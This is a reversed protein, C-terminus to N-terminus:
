DVWSVRSAVRNSKVPAAPQPTYTRPAITNAQYSVPASRGSSLATQSGGNGSPSYHHEGHSHHRRHRRHRRGHGHHFFRFVLKAARANGRCRCPCSKRKHHRRRGHRGGKKHHKHAHHKKGKKHHKKSKLVRGLGKMLKRLRRMHRKHHGKSHKKHHHTVGSKGSKAHHHHSKKGLLKLAKMRLRRPLVTCKTLPRFLSKLVKHRLAQRITKQLLTPATHKQGETHHQHHKKGKNNFKRLIRLNKKVNKLFNKQDNPM